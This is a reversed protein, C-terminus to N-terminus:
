WPCKISMFYRESHSLIVLAGSYHHLYILSLPTVPKLSYFNGQRGSPCHRFGLLQSDGCGIWVEGASRKAGPLLRLIDPFPTPPSRCCFPVRTSGATITQYFCYEVSAFGSSFPLGPLSTKGSHMDRRSPGSWQLPLPIIVVRPFTISTFNLMKRRNEYHSSSILHKLLPIPLVTLSKLEGEM